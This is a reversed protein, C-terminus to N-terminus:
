RMPRRAVPVGDPGLGIGAELGAVEPADEEIALGEDRVRRPAGLEGVLLACLPVGEQFGGV